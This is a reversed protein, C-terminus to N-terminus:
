SSAGRVYIERINSFEADMEDLPLQVGSNISKFQPTPSSEKLTEQVALLDFWDISFSILGSYEASLSIGFSFSWYKPWRTRSALESSFIRISSLISSLLLLPHCLILHNTPMALVISMLKFLSRSNTISLSTQSAITWPTKFLRVCSLLQVSSFPLHFHLLYTQTDSLLNIWKEIQAQHVYKFRQFKQRHNCPKVEESVGHFTQSGHVGLVFVQQKNIKTKTKISFYYLLFPAEWTASTIFFGGAFDPSILSVPEMGPDPLDGPTPCPLGSWYEQRSFELPLPAQCAVTWLMVFLQVPSFHSLVGRM